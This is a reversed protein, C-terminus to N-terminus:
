PILPNRSQISVTFFSDLPMAKSFYTLLLCWILDVLLSCLSFVFPATLLVMTQKTFNGEAPYLHVTVFGSYLSVSAPSM